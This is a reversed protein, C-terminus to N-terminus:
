QEILTVTQSHQLTGSTATVTLAYTQPSQLPLGNHTGCGDMAATTGAMLLLLPLIRGNLKKRLSRKMGFPLLLLALVIGRGIPSHSNQAMAIM